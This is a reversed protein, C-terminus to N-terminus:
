YVKDLHNNYLRIINWAQSQQQDSIQPMFCAEAFEAQCYISNVSENTLIYIFIDSKAIANLISQWWNDGGLLGHPSKDYWLEFDPFMHELCTYLKEVFGLDVRSYSLFIQTM